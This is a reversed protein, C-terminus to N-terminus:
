KAKRKRTVIYAAIAAAIVVIGVTGVILQTSLGSAEGLAAEMERESAAPILEPERYEAGAPLVTYPEDICVWANIRGFHYGVFGWERGEADTYFSNLTLAQDETDSWNQLTLGTIGSGPYLYTIVECGEDIFLNYVGNRIESKHEEMFEQSGYRPLLEGMDVWGSDGNVGRNELTDPDYEICAWTKGDSGKSWTAGVRFERGNPINVVASGTPSSYVTVYGNVGNVHYWHDHHECEEYHEYYFDDGFPEYAIDAFASISLLLAFAIFLVFTKRIKM